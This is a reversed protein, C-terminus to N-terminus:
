VKVQMARNQMARNQRVRNKPQWLFRTLRPIGTYDKHGNHVKHIHNKLVYGQSFSKGCYYCENKKHSDQVNESVIEIKTPLMRLFINLKEFLQVNPM